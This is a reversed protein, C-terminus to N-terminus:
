GLKKDAGGPKSALDIILCGKKVKKLFDVRLVKQPVTNIILDFKKAINKAQDFSVSTYGYTKIWAADSFKRCTRYVEAHLASFTAALVKGLRGFGTILV